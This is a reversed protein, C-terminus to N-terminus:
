LYGLAQILLEGGFSVDVFLWVARCEERGHRCYGTVDAVWYVMMHAHM